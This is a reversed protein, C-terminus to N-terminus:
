ALSKGIMTKNVGVRHPLYYGDGNPFVQHCGYIVCNSCPWFEFKCPNSGFGTHKRVRGPFRNLGGALLCSMYLAPQITGM